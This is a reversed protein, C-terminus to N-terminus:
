SLAKRVFQLIGEIVKEHDEMLEEGLLIAMRNRYYHSTFSFQYMMILNDFCFSLIHLDMKEDITARKQAKELVQMYYNATITELQKSLRSSLNSLAETTIDLYIQSHEPYTCAYHSASRLLLEFFEFVDDTQEYAETLVGELITFCDEVITLFLDEKSAFYSYMSGISIGAKKAVENINTAIYGKKAFEERAAQLVKERREETIKDFTEKHYAM